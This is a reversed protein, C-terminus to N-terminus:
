DISIDSQKSVESVEKDFDLVLKSVIDEFRKLHENDDFLITKKLSPLIKVFKRRVNVIRDGALGMCYYLLKNEKLFKSSFIKSMHGYFDLYIMRYKYNESNFFEEHIKTMIEKTKM